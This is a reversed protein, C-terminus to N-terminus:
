KKTLATGPWREEEKHASTTVELSYLFTGDKAVIPTHINIRETHNWPHVPFSGLSVVRKTDTDEITVTVLFM